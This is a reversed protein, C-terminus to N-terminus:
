RGLRAHAGALTGEALAGILSIEGALVAAAIVEALEKSSKVKMADLLERQTEVRTGGGLTGVCLAPITVSVYVDGNGELEATTVAMSGDVVHAPDQGLAIFTAAIVNAAHANFGRSVGMVSGLLNKRYNVDVFEEASCKLVGKLAKRTLVAEAIVSKGRGLVFNLGSVKKDVCVNGSLAVLKAGKQNAAIWDCARQTAITVMNLGAADGTEYAFRLWVNRGIYFPTISKLKTFKSEGEAEARIKAFNGGVWDVFKVAESVNKAKFVPARTMEDKLVKADAGGAANIATCGRNVSAVLAGETTALFVPYEGNAHEGKVKLPGAVGVPVQVAGIPSDINRGTVAPLDISYSSVHKLKAGQREEIARRRIAIAKPVPCHEQIEHLKVEGKLVRELLDTMPM